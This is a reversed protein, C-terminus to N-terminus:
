SAPQLRKIEGIQKQLEDNKRATTGAFSENLEQECLKFAELMAPNIQSYWDLKQVNKRCRTATSKSPHYWYQDLLQYKGM